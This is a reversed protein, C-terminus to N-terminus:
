AQKLCLAKNTEGFQAYSTNLHLAQGEIKSADFTHQCLVM